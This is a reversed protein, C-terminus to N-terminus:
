GRSPVIYTGRPQLPNSYGMNTNAYGYDYICAVDGKDFAAEM